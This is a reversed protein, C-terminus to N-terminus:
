SLKVTRIKVLNQNGNNEPFEPNEEQYQVSKLSKSSSISVQKKGEINCRLKSKFFSKM